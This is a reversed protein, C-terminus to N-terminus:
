PRDVPVRVTVTTGKRPVGNITFEGGLLTAREHMGVLGLSKPSSIKSHTIGKGNDHIQLILHRVNQTLNVHVKTAHAHRSVNTLTEQFIRFLATARQQDFDREELSSSIKCPIKTRTQFERAQWEIAALLGLHDLVAPRLETSIKRIREITSDVLKSMSRTKEVLLKDHERRTSRRDRSSCRHSVKSSLWALDMKLGTLAQGLEDHIERAIRTKEEERVAQLRASLERLQEHSDRLRKEARKPESIDFRSGFKNRGANVLTLREFQKM